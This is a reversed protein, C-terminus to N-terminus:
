FLAVSTAGSTACPPQCFHHYASVAAHDNDLLVSKQIDLLEFVFFRLFSRARIRIRPVINRFYSVVPRTDSGRTWYPSAVAKMDIIKEPIEYLQKRFQKYVQGIRSVRYASLLHFLLPLSFLPYNEPKSRSDHM